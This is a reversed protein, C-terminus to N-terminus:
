ESRTTDAELAKIRRHLHNIIIAFTSDNQALKQVNAETTDARCKLLYIKDPLPADLGFYTLTSILWVALLLAPIKLRNM